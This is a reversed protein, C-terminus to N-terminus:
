VWFILLVLIHGKVSHFPTNAYNSYPFDVLLVHKQLFIIKQFSPNLMRCIYM